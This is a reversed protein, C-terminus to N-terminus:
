MEERETIKNEQTLKNYHDAPNLGSHKKRFNDCEKGYYKCGRCSLNYFHRIRCVTYGQKILM